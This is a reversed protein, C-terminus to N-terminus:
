ERDWNRTVPQNNARMFDMYATLVETAPFGKADTRKAWDLALPAMGKAWKAREDPAMKTAVTKFETECKNLGSEAGDILLKLQRDSWDKSAGTFAVKVEDPAADWFDANVTLPIISAAGLGADLMHPAPECLKFAGMAQRWVIMADYIGTNLSNYADALNTSVGAAGTPVVWPLNPGAAGVKKGKLDDLTRLPTSSLLIYNDVNDTVGIQVQNFEKWNKAFAPFKEQLMEYAETVIGPDGANTFPTVYPINYLPIKDAHFAGPITSIEGLGSELAEFEGRPKAIQGSHALNWNIKFNGTKALAADVNKVFVDDFAGVWTAAPPYGSIFTIDVSQQAQVPQLTTAGVVTAVAAAIALTTSRPLTNKRM